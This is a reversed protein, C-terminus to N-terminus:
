MALHLALDIVTNSTTALTSYTGMYIYAARFFSTISPVTSVCFPYNKHSKGFLYAGSSLFYM